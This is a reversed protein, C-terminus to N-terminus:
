IEGEGYQIDCGIFERGTSQCVRFVSYGGSSPDCVIDGEKTTALIFQKQLEEPKSHPHVRSVKESWVDPINHITWFEKAKIPEKQFIIVYESKRRTRYGLGIKEKDWTVMDVLKLSTDKFWPSVGECLHFKDVWLFLYGSPRIVRDLERIFKIIVEESMQPLESRSKGKSTKENGYKLKDLIGRYQPDFFATVVKDDNINKLLELGDMKNKYNIKCINEDKLLPVNCSVIDKIM